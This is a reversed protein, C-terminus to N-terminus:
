ATPACASALSLHDAPDPLEDQTTEPEDARSPSRPSRQRTSRSPLRHHGLYGCIADKSPTDPSLLKNQTSESEMAAHLPRPTRQLRMSYSVGDSEMWSWVFEMRHQLQINNLTLSM